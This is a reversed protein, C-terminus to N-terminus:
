AAPAEPPPTPSAKPDVEAAIARMADRKKRNRLKVWVVLGVIAVITGILFWRGVESSAAEMWERGYSAALTGLTLWVPVSVLCGVFDWFVFKAINMRMTGATYFTVFRLGAMQRGIFVTFSGYGEYWRQVRAMREDNLLRAVFRFKRLAWGFKRGLAYAVLDGLLIPVVVTAFTVVYHWWVFADGAQKYTTFGSLTLPVDEPLPVGFGSIFLVVVICLWITVRHTANWVPDLVADLISEIM